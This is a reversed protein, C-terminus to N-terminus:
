YFYQKQFDRNLKLKQKENPKTTLTYIKADICNGFSDYQYEEQYITKTGNLNKNTYRIVDGRDNYMENEDRLSGIPKFSIKMTDTSLVKETNSIVSTIVTNKDYLYTGVEKGYPEGNANFTTLEIPYGRDNNTIESRLYTVGSKNKHEVRILFNNADYTFHMDDISQGLTKNVSEVKIALIIHRATDNVNESIRNINGNDGHRQEKLLMGSSDFTKISTDIEKGSKNYFTSIEIIKKPRKTKYDSQDNLHLASYINQSHAITTSFVFLFIYKFIRKSM